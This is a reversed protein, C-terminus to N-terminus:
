QIIRSRVSYDNFYLQKLMTSSWHFTHWQIVPVLFAIPLLGIVGWEIHKHLWTFVLVGGVGAAVLMVMRPTARFGLLASLGLTSLVISPMILKRLDFQHLRKFWGIM